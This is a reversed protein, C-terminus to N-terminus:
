DAKKKKKKKEKKGGASLGSHQCNQMKMTFDDCYFMKIKQGIPTIKM